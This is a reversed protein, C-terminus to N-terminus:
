LLPCRGDARPEVLDIRLARRPRLLDAGSGQPARESRGLRASVGCGLCSPVLDRALLSPSHVLLSGDPAILLSERGARWAAAESWAGLLLSAAGLLWLSLPVEDGTRWLWWLCRPESSGPDFGGGGQRGGTGLRCVRM